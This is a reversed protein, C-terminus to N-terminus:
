LSERMEKVTELNFKSRLIGTKRTRLKGPTLKHYGPKSMDIEEYVTPEFCYIPIVEIEPNQHARKVAWDLVCNDHM